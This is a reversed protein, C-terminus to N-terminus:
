KKKGLNYRMGAYFERGRTPGWVSSLDFYPGFPNDASIIPSRQLYNGINECGAYFEFSKIRFTGQMNVTIYAESEAPRRYQEPNNRTDPLRMKDFWHANIDAQWRNNVTRYSVASMVRNRPNFPLLLKEKGEKRYAYLYNYAARVELQRFLVLSADIQMANSRSANELNRIVIGAPDADYDPFIQRQFLTQYFDASITGSSNAGLNFRWTHSVGWNFAEEPKLTAPLIINRSSTLMVPQESFLNVQRWGTGASARFTHRHNIAYKLMTRPTFYYGETQHKDLRAGAILIMKDGAWHFTNEAFVGPVRLQTLHKGIYTKAPDPVSLGLDETTNLYRYSIGAKLSHQKWLLEHQLNLYGLTQRGRYSLTGFWSDQQHLSGAASFSTLHKESFRFGMKSYLEPQNYQVFQGYINGSGKDNDERYNNQGGIRKENVFRVGLQWHFGPEKEGGYKWKNYAMYRTLLPLDLFGDHNRDTRAARQVSHLALLSHWKKNKGVAGALNANFHKEGFSNIYANFHFKDSEDPHRTDVNIQGSISEFGQLVSTAGKAVYINEVATGPYTSIGYTYTLGQVLPMGDVLVQNYVGSLGLIRLEQSNTVVNTTQPQVSAQTGFCGALDCCAAKSLERQNILEMQVVSTTPFLNGSKSTVTVGSMAVPARKLLISVYGGGDWQITDTLYGNCRAIIRKDTIGEVTLQFVGNENVIVPAGEAIWQVTAGPLIEKGQDNEGFLKGKILQAHLSGTFLLLVFVFTRRM